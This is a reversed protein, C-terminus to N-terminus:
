ERGTGSAKADCAAQLSGFCATCRLILGWKLAARTGFTVMVVFVCVCVRERECVCVSEREIVHKRQALAM